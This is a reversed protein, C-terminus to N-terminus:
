DQKPQNQQNTSVDLRAAGAKAIMIATGVNEIGANKYVRIASVTAIATKTEEDPELILQADNMTVGRQELIKKAAEVVKDELESPNTDIIDMDKTLNGTQERLIRDIIMNEAMEYRSGINDSSIQLDGGMKGLYRAGEIFLIPDTITYTYTWRTVSSVKGAGSFQSKFVAEGPMPWNPIAVNFGCYNGAHKPISKGTPIKEWSKGCNETQIVHVNSPAPTCASLVAIIITSFVIKKM